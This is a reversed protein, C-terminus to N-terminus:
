RGARRRLAMRATNTSSTTASAATAPAPAAASPWPEPREARRCRAFRLLTTHRSAIILTWFRQRTALSADDCARGQREGGRRLQRRDSRCARRGRRRDGRRAATARSYATFPRSSLIPSGASRPRGRAPTPPPPSSRSRTASAAGTRALVASSRRAPALCRQRAVHEAAARGDRNAHRDM